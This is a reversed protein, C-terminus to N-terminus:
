CRIFYKVNKEIIRCQGNNLAERAKKKGQIKKGRVEYWGGGLEKMSGKHPPMVSMNRSPRPERCDDCSFGPPCIINDRCKMIQFVPPMYSMVVHEGM